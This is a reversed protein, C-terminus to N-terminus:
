IMQFSYIEYMYVQRIIVETITWWCLYRSLSQLSFTSIWNLTEPIVNMMDNDFSLFKLYKHLKCFFLLFHCKTIFKGFDILIWSCYIVNQDSRQYRWADRINDFTPMCYRFNKDKSMMKDPFKSYWNINWRIQSSQIYWKWIRFNVYMCNPFVEAANQIYIM